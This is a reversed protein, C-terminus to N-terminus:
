EKFAEQAQTIVEEYSKEDAMTVEAIKTGDVPSYSAIKEGHTDIWRSGVAAGRNQSEVQLKDLISSINTTM